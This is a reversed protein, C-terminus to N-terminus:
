LNIPFGTSVCKATKKERESIKSRTKNPTSILNDHM